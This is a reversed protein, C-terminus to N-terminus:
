NFMINDINLLILESRKVWHSRWHNKVLSTQEFRLRFLVCFFSVITHQTSDTNNIFDITAYPEIDLTFFYIKNNWNCGYWRRVSNHIHKQSCVCHPNLSLSEEVCKIISLPNQWALIWNEDTWRVSKNTGNNEYFRTLNINFILIINWKQKVMMAVITIITITLLHCQHPFKQSPHLDLHHLACSFTYCHITM